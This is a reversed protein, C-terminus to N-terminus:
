MAAVILNDLQQELRPGIDVRLASTMATRQLHSYDFTVALNDLPKEIPPRINITRASGVVISQLRSFSIAIFLDELQQFRVLPTGLCQEM